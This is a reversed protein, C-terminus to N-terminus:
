KDRERLVRTAQDLDSQRADLGSSDFPRTNVRDLLNRVAKNRSGEEYQRFRPYRQGEGRKQHPTVSNWKWDLFQQQEGMVKDAEGRAERGVARFSRSRKLHRIASRHRQHRLARPGMDMVGMDHHVARLHRGVAVGAGQKTRLADAYDSVAKQAPTLDQGLIKAKEAGLLGHRMVSPLSKTIKVPPKTDVPFRIVPKKPRLRLGGKSWVSYPTTLVKVPSAKKTVLWRATRKKAKAGPIDEFARTRAIRKGDDYAQRLLSKYPSSILLIRDARAVAPSLKSVVGFANREM